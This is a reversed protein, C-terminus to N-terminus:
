EVSCVLAGYSIAVVLMDMDPWKMTVDVYYGLTIIYCTCTLLRSVNWLFAHVFGLSLKKHPTSATLKQYSLIFCPVNQVILEM